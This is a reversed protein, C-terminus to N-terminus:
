ASKGKKILKIIYKIDSYVPIEKVKFTKILFVWTVAVFATSVVKWFFLHFYEFWDAGFKTLIYALINIRTINIMLVLMSGTIFMLVMKKWSIGKTLLVLLALLYYASAATCSSVFRLPIDNVILLDKSSAIVNLGIATLTIKSLFVTLPSFINYFMNFFIGLALAITVRIALKSHYEM